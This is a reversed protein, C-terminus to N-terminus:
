KLTNIVAMSYARLEETNVFDTDDLYEVRVMYPLTESLWKSIRFRKLGQAIFQIKGGEHALQHMRVASGVEYFDESTAHDPVDTKVLILGTVRQETKTIMEVTPQWPDENLLLPLAQAPFFPRESLPLLHLVYPQQENSLTEALHPRSNHHHDHDVTAQQPTLM